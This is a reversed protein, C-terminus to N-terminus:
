DDPATEDKMWQVFHPHNLALGLAQQWIRPACRWAIPM